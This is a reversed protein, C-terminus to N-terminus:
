ALTVMLYLLCPTVQEKEGGPKLVKCLMMIVFRCMNLNKAEKIKILSPFVRPSVCVRTTPALVSCMAFTLFLRMFKSNAPRMNRLKEELSTMSPQKKRTSGFQERMFKVADADKGYIVKVPGMPVGM